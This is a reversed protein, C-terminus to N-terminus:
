NPEPVNRQYATVTSTQPPAPVTLLTMATRPAQKPEPVAYGRSQEAPLGKECEGENWSPLYQGSARQM